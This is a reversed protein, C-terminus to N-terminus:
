NYPLIYNFHTLLTQLTVISPSTRSVEVDHSRAVETFNEQIELMKDMQDDTMCHVRVEQQDHIKAFVVFRSLFPIAIAEQHLKTAMKASESINQCDM